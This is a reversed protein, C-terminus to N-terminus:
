VNAFPRVPFTLIPYRSIWLSHGIFSSKSRKHMKRHWTATITETCNWTTLNLCNKSLLCITQYARPSLRLDLWQLSAYQQLNDAITQIMPEGMEHFNVGPIYNYLSLKKVHRLNQLAMNCSWDLNGLCGLYVSAYELSAIAGIAQCLESYLLRARNAVRLIAPADFRDLRIINSTRILQMLAEREEDDFILDVVFLFESTFSTVIRAGNATHSALADRYQVISGPQDLQFLVEVEDDQDTTM